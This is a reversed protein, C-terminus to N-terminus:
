VGSGAKTLGFGSGSIVGESSLVNAAVTVTRNGTLIVPAASFDLSSSGTFIFNGGFSITGSGMALSLASGSTNDVTGGNIAFVSNSAAQFGSFSGASQASAFNLTGNTLTYNGVYTSVYGVSLNTEYINVTGNTMNQVFGSGAVSDNGGIATGFNFTGGGILTVVTKNFNLGGPAQRTSSMTLTSGTNIYWPATAGHENGTGNMTINLGTSNVTIGAFSDGASLVLNFTGQLSADGPSTGFTFYASSSSPFAVLAGTGAGLANTNWMLASDANGSVPTGFGATLGNFDAYYNAARGAPVALVGCAASLLLARRFHPSRRTLLRTNM